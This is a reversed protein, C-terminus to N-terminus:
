REIQRRALAIKKIEPGQAGGYGAKEGGRWVDGWSVENWAM